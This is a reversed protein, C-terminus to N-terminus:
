SRLAVGRPPAAPPSGRAGLRGAALKSSVRALELVGELQEALDRLEATTALPDSALARADDYLIELAAHSVALRMWLSETTELEGTTMAVTTAEFDGRLPAIREALQRAAAQAEESPQVSPATDAKMIAIATLQLAAYHGNTEALVVTATPHPAPRPPPASHACAALAAPLLAPILLPHFRRSRRHMPSIYAGDQCAYTVRSM